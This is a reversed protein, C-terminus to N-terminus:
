AELKSIKAVFPPDISKNPWHRCWHKDSICRIAFLLGKVPQDLQVSGAQCSGPDSTCGKM